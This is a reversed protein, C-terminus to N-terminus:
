KIESWTGEKFEYVGLLTIQSRDYCYLYKSKSGSFDVHVVYRDSCPKTRYANTDLMWRLDAIDGTEFKRTTYNLGKKKMKEPLDFKVFHETIDLRIDAERDAAVINEKKQENSVSKSKAHLLQEAGAAPAAQEMMAPAAARPAAQHKKGTIEDRSSTPAELKAPPPGSAITGEAPVPPEPREYEDKMDLSKYGPKRPVQQQEPAAERLPKNEEQTRGAVPVEKNALTGVPEESYKKAPNIGQFIYYATVILFIVAVAQVPLKTVMPVFVRQWFSRKAEQEERVKAMIKQTMWAPSEVEEIEQIHEITKTLEHLADSCETCTKLHEEIAAREEPTISEDIYDSLKHRIEEHKM